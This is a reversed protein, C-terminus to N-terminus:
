LMKENKITIYNICKFFLCEINESVNDRINLTLYNIGSFSLNECLDGSCNIINTIKLNQLDILTSATKYGSIYLFDKIIENYDEEIKRENNNDMNLVEKLNMKIRNYKPINNDNEKNLNLNLNIPNHFINKSDNYRKITNITFIYQVGSGVVEKKKGIM